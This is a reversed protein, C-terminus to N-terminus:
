WTVLIKTISIQFYIMIIIIEASTPIKFLKKLWLNEFHSNGLNQLFNLNIADVFCNLDRYQIGGKKYSGIITNHSIKPFEKHLKEVLKIFDPPQYDIQANFMFLSSSLANILLKKGFM